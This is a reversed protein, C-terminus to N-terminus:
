QYYSSPLIIIIFYGVNRVNSGRIVNKEVAKQNNDYFYNLGNLCFSADSPYKLTNFNVGLEFINKQKLRIFALLSNSFEIYAAKESKM